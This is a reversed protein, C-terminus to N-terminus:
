GPRLASSLGDRFTSIWPTEALETGANFENPEYLYKTLPYYYRPVASECVDDGREILDPATGGILQTRVFQKYAREYIPLQVVKVDPFRKEFEKIAHDIGERFGSELQWHCIRIVKKDTWEEERKTRIMNWVAGVYAVVVLTIGIGNVIRSRLGETDRGKM